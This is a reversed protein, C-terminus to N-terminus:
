FKTYITSIVLNQPSMYDAYELEMKIIWDLSITLIVQTATNFDCPQLKTGLTGDKMEDLSMTDGTQKEYAFIVLLAEVPGLDTRPWKQFLFM